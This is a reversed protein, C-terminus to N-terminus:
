GEKREQKGEHLQFTKFYIYPCILLKRVNFIIIVEKRRFSMNFYDKMVMNSVYM